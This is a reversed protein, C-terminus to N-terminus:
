VTKADLAHSWRFAQQGSLHIQPKLPWVGDTREQPHVVWGQLRLFRIFVSALSHASSSPCSKVSYANSTTRSAKAATAPMFWSALAILPTKVLAPEFKVAFV